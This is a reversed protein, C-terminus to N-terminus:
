ATAAKAAASRRKIKELQAAHKRQRAAAREGAKQQADWKIQLQKAWARRFANRGTDQPALSAASSPSLPALLM